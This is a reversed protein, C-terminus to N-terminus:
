KKNQKYRQSFLLSVGPKEVSFLVFCLIFIFVQQGQKSQDLELPVSTILKHTVVFVLGRRPTLTHTRASDSSDHGDRQSGIVELGGPEKTWKIRWALISSHTAMGEELPDELGLTQVWM